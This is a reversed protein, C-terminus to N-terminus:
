EKLRMLEDILEMYVSEMRNYACQLNHLELLCRDWGARHMERDEQTARLKSKWLKNEEKLELYNSMIVDMAVREKNNM